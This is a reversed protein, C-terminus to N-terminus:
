TQGNAQPHFASSFQLQTGFKNWVHQWFKSIFKVDRDFTVTKPVGHLRIIERFFLHAASTADKTKKCAIFHAMKFFRAVVVLISDRGTKTRPLGLGFDMPLDLWINDLVPLPMYSRTNQANGKGEQCIRCRQVIKRVDRTLQPWYYWEEVRAKTKDRGIHGGLGEGHLERIIHERLSSQSVCLQNAKFLCGDHILFDEVNQYNICRDWIHM